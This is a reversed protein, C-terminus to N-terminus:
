VYFMLKNIIIFTIVKKDTVYNWSKERQHQNGIVFTYKGVLFRPVKTDATTIVQCETDATLLLQKM